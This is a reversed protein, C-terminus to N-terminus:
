QVPLRYGKTRFLRICADVVEPDYFVGRHATIEGLALEIGLAARYPRHMAIAEVVDAVGIIRSGLLIEGDKLGAPYGSGDLREHHQLVFDAVPWPFEVGKLVEHGTKPHEKILAFEVPSLKGPFSLIEAPVHIKGIDHVMAALFIGNIEDAPLGLERGIQLALDAVRRQHGATYPDRMEITAAMAHITGEMGKEIRMLDRAREEELRGRAARVRLWNLGFALDSALEGLLKLEEADFAETEVAYITLAGLVGTEQSLPFSVGAAIGLRGAEARCHACSSDAQIDPVVQPRGSRMAEGAMCDPLATPQLLLQDRLEL